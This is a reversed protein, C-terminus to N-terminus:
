KIKIERRGRGEREKANAMRDPFWLREKELKRVKVQIRQGNSCWHKSYMVRKGYNEGDHGRKGDRRLRKTVETMSKEFPAHLRDICRASSHFWNVVGKLSHNFHAGVPKNNFLWYSANVWVDRWTRNSGMNVLSQSTVLRLTSDQRIHKFLCNVLLSLAASVLTGDLTRKCISPERYILNFFLSKFYKLPWWIM